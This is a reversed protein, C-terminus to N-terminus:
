RQTHIAQAAERLETENLHDFDLAALKELRKRLSSYTDEFAARQKAMEDVSAPDPLGWHVQVPHGPWYPCAEGAANDCVTIVVDMHPAGPAAYEEWSKSRLGGIDHGKASLVALAMPNVEGRPTSGASYGKLGPLSSAIVEGMISRASNATCLILINRDSM